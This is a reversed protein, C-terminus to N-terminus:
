ALGGPKRPDVIKPEGPRPTLNEYTGDQRKQLKTFGLDRLEANSREIKLAPASILRRVKKDCMPCETLAPESMSQALEFRGGCFSCHGDVPEYDYRPM